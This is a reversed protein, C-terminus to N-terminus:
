TLKEHNDVFLIVGPDFVLILNMRSDQGGRNNYVYWVSYYPIFCTELARLGLTFLVSCSTFLTILSPHHNRESTFVQSIHCDTAHASGHTSILVAKESALHWQNGAHLCELKILTWLAQVLTKRM